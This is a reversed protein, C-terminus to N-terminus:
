NILNIAFKSKTKEILSKKKIYIPTFTQAGYKILLLIGKKFRKQIAYHLPIYKENIFYNPNVGSKLLTELLKENKTKISIAIPTRKDKDSENLIGLSQDTKMIYDILEQLLIYNENYCIYHLPSQSKKNTYIIIKKNTELSLTLVDIVLQTKNKKCLIHLLDNGYNNKYNIDYLKNEIVQTFIKKTNITQTELVSAYEQLIDNGNDFKIIGLLHPQYNITDLIKNELEKVSTKM